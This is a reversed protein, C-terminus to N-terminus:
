RYKWVTKCQPEELESEIEADEFGHVQVLHERFEDRNTSARRKCGKIRCTFTAGTAFTEWSAKCTSARERRCNVLARACAEFDRHTERKSSWKAFADDMTKISKSGPRKQFLGRKPEWEDLNINLAGPENFRYYTFGNVKDGAWDAVEEHVAEPNTVKEVADEAFEVLRFFRGRGPAKNCRATGVSVVINITDKGHEERIDLLGQKTPNNTESFGGDIFEIKESGNEIVLPRFYFPAATAARAVEWIEYNQAKGYNRTRKNKQKNKQSSYKTVGSASSQGTNTRSPSAMSNTNWTSKRSERPSTRLELDYSRILHLQAVHQSASRLSSIFTKCMGPNSPFKVRSDNHSEDIKESRRETVDQFVRELKTTDYKARNGIKFRLTNFTRPNGFVEDGLTMYEEICDPVSMRFRGLLIAILGGTSSGGIYDFYHCPLYRRAPDIQGGNSLAQRVNEPGSEPHYSHRAESDLEEEAEGVYEMLTKLVLLELYGRIGGGDLSLLNYSRWDGDNRREFTRSNTVRDHPVPSILDEGETDPSVM